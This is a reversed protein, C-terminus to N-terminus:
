KALLPWLMQLQVPGVLVQDEHCTRFTDSSGIMLRLSARKRQGPRADKASETGPQKWAARIVTDEADDMVLTAPLGDNSWTPLAALIAICNFGQEKRFAVMDKFGMDPGIPRRTDDDHWPYRYTPTSWWTDGLLFFPTGDGLEFGHGNPTSRIFGRRTHNEEKEADTWAVADFSGRKGVLGSDNRNSGTVWSWRGPKDAVLRIRFISGGDWFGYVRGSFGPGNLDAWVEADTYPNKYHHEATLELEIKEWTHFINMHLQTYM